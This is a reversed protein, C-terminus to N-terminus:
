LWFFYAFFAAAMFFNALFRHAESFSFYSRRYLKQPKKNLFSVFSFISTLCIKKKLAGSM